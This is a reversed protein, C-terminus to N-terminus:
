IVGRVGGGRGNKPEATRMGKDAPDERDCQDGDSM